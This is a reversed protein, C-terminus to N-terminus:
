DLLKLLAEDDLYTVGGLAETLGDGYTGPNEVAANRGKLLCAIEAYTVLRQTEGKQIYHGKLNGKTMPGPIGDLALNLDYDLNMAHQLAAYGAKKTAPGFIGDVEIPRVSCSAPLFNNLHRQGMAVNLRTGSFSEKEAESYRPRGFGAVRNGGGVSAYSYAHHAVCGGNTVFDDGTNTNGEITRITKDATNVSKVIGVHCIRGMSSSYFYVIDGVEPVTHWRGAEKFYSSGTPTYGTMYNGDNTQCLLKKAASISGAVEVAIADVFYQCWQDGNGAGAIPQFRQYNGSGADAYFDDMDASAHNKERYGVFSEAHAVLREATVGSVKKMEKGDTLDAYEKIYKVCVVHRSWFKKHEVPEKYRVLDAYRSNLCELIHDASYNGGARTFVREAASKGGLHQVEAWMMQGDVNTVGFAEARAIYKSIREQFIYESAKHGAYTGLMKILISKEVSGPNWETGVWSEKLKEEIVGNRDCEKFTIYFQDHIYQVLAQAEDGYAQYPGLTCTVENETNAYAGAYATWDRNESYIQGGSEVAAIINSLVHRNKENM